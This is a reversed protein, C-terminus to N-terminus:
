TMAKLKSLAATRTALFAVSAALPPIFLPLIWEFGQFRLSTLFSGVNDAAPFFLIAMTGIVAGGFAGLATRLTFRRVFAKAVYADRAGILRLVRIIQENAALSATAALTVVAATSLAILAIAFLGMQRLRGAAKALPQRWRTHDDLVAGPVEAQLRLRLGESDFGQADETVDILQPIPLTELPLDAGFWPTLLVRQDETTLARAQSVGPTQELIRLAAATQEAMQDAPASIRITSTRSLDTEWTTALRNTAALLALAFVALFAMAAATLMTLYAPVGAHPVIDSGESAKIQTWFARPGKSIM